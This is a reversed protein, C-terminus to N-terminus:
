AVKFAPAEHPETEARLHNTLVLSGCRGGQTLMLEPRQRLAM